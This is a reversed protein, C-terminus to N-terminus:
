FVHVSRKVHEEENATGFTRKPVLETRFGPHVHREDYWMGVPTAPRILWAAVKSSIIVVV